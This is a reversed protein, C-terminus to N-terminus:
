LYAEMIEALREASDEFDQEAALVAAPPDGIELTDLIITGVGNLYQVAWVHRTGTLYVRATGYGGSVITLPSQGIATTLFATDEETMPLLTFNIVHNPTGPTWRAARERIENLVAPANMVGPPWADFTPLDRPYLRAAERVMVPADGIEIRDEIITEDPATARVSWVGALVTENAQWLPDHGAVISVEGDGLIDALLARDDASLHIVPLILPRRAELAALIRNLIAKLEASAVVDRRLKMRERRAITTPMGLLGLSDEASGVFVGTPGEEDTWITPNPRPSFGDDHSM